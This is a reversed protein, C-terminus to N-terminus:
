SLRLRGGRGALHARDTGALPHAWMRAGRSESARPAVPSVAVDRALRPVAEAAVGTALAFDYAQPDNGLRQGAGIGVHPGVAIQTVLTHAGVRTQAATATAASATGAGLFMVLAVVLPALLFGPWRPNGDRAPKTM